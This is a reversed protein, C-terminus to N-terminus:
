DNKESTDKKVSDIVIIDSIDDNISGNYKCKNSCFNWRLLTIILVLLYLITWLIIWGKIVSAEPFIPPPPPPQPPKPPIIPLITITNHFSLDCIMYLLNFKNKNTPLRPVIIPLENDIVSGPIGTLKANNYCEFIGSSYMFITPKMECVDLNFPTTLLNINKTVAYQQFDYNTLLKDLNDEYPEIGTENTIDDFLVSDNSALRVLAAPSYFLQSKMEDTISNSIDNRFPLPKPSDKPLYNCLLYQLKFRNSDIFPGNTYFVGVGRLIMNYLDLIFDNTLTVNTLFGELVQNSDVHAKINTQLLDIIYKLKENSLVKRFEILSKPSINLEPYRNLYFTYLEYILNEKVGAGGMNKILLRDQQTIELSDFMEDDNQILLSELIRGVLLRSLRQHSIHYSYGNTADLNPGHYSVKLLVIQNGTSSYEFKSTKIAYDLSDIGSPNDILNKYLQDIDTSLCCDSAKRLNIIFKYYSEVIKPDVIINRNLLKNIINM